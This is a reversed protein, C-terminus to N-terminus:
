PRYMSESNAGQLYGCFEGKDDRYVWRGPLSATCPASYYLSLDLDKSLKSSDVVKTTRNFVLEYFTTLDQPSGHTLILNELACVKAFEVETIM